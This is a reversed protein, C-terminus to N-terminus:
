KKDSFLLVTLFSLRFWRLTQLAIIIIHQACKSIEPSFWEQEREYLGNNSLYTLEAFCLRCLTKSGSFRATVRSCRRCVQVWGLEAIIRQLYHQSVVLRHFSHQYLSTRFFVLAVVVPLKKNTKTEQQITNSLTEMKTSILVLTIHSVAEILKKDFTLGNLWYFQMTCQKKPVM